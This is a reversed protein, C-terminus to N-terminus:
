QSQLLLGTLCYVYVVDEGSQQGDKECQITYTNKTKKTQQKKIWDIMTNYQLLAMTLTELIDSNWWSVNNCADIVVSSGMLFLFAWVWSGHIIDLNFCPFAWVTRLHSLENCHYTFSWECDRLIVLESKVTKPCLQTYPHSINCTHIYVWVQLTFASRGRWETM